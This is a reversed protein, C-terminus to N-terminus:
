IKGSFRGATDLVIDQLFLVVTVNDGAFFLLNLLDTALYYHYM